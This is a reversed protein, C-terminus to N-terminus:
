FSGYIMGRAFRWLDRSRSFRSRNRRTAVAEVFSSEDERTYRVSNETIFSLAHITAPTNAGAFEVRRPRAVRGRVTFGYDHGFNNWRPTSRNGQFRTILFSTHEQSIEVFAVNADICM